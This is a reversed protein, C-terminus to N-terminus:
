ENNIFIFCIKAYETNQYEINLKQYETNIM